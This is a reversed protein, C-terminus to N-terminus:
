ENRDNEELAFFAAECICIETHVDVSFYVWAGLPVVWIEMDLCM